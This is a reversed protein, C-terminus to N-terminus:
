TISMGLKLAYAAMVALAAWRLVRGFVFRYRHNRTVARVAGCAGVLSCTAVAAAGILGLEVSANVLLWVALVPWMLSDFVAFIRRGHWPPADPRPTRTYVMWM